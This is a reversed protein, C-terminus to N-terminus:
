PCLKWTKWEDKLELGSEVQPTQKIYKLDSAHYFVQTKLYDALESYNVNGKTSQLKKLLFYTFLGHYNQNYPLAVEDESAASFVVINGKLQSRKPKIKVSRAALMGENRGGGSFCADLFVTVRKPSYKTLEVYLDDLKVAETVKSARIDIPMLYAEKTKINPFGHGAYFFFLEANEFIAKSALRSIEDNMQSKIADTLLTINEQPIGLTKHAYKKFIMADNRAFDVNAENQYTTYDENGIILAYRTTYLTDIKPINKDVDSTLKTITIQTSDSYVPVVEIKNKRIEKNFELELAESTGFKGFKEWIDVNVPLTNDTYLKNAIFEFTIIRSQNPQMEGIEFRYKDIPFVNQPLNFQLGVDEARGQGLNQIVIKLTVPQGPEAINGKESSFVHDTIELEPTFFEQVPISIEVPDSNFGNPEIVVVRFYAEGSSLQMSGKVPVIIRQLGDKPIDEINLEQEFELGQIEPNLQRTKVSLNQANGRGQNEVAFEIFAKEGADIRNNNNSDYFKLTNQKVVLLPPEFPKKTNIYHSKSVATIVEVDPMEFLTEPPNKKAKQAKILVASLDFTWTATAIIGLLNAVNNQRTAKAFLENSKDTTMTNKYMNYTDEAKRNLAIASALCSYGVLGRMWFKRKKQHPIDYDGWGPILLSKALAKGTNVEKQRVASIRFYLNGDIEAEDKSVHWVIQHLKGAQVSGVDGSVHKMPIRQEEKTFADIKVYFVDDEEFNVMRYTIIINMETHRFDVKEIRTKTDDLQSFCVLGSLLGIILLYFKKAM